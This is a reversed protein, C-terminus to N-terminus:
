SGNNVSRAHLDNELMRLVRIRTMAEGNKTVVDSVGAMGRTFREGQERLHEISTSLYGKEPAAGGDRKVLSKTRAWYQDASGLYGKVGELFSLTATSIDLVGQLSQNLEQEATVLREASRELNQEREVSHDQSATAGDYADIFQASADLYTRITKGTRNLTAVGQATFRTFLSAQGAYPIPLVKILNAAVTSAQLYKQYGDLNESLWSVYRASEKVGERQGRVRRAMEKLESWVRGHIEDSTLRPAQEMLLLRKRLTEIEGLEAACPPSDTPLVHTEEGSTGHPHTLFARAPVTILLLLSVTLLAQYACNMTRNYCPTRNGVVATTEM